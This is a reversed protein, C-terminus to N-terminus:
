NLSENDLIPNDKSSTKETNLFRCLFNLPNFFATMFIKPMFISCNLALILLNLDLSFSIGIV